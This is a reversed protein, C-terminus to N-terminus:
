RVGDLLGKYRPALHQHAGAVLASLLAEDVETELQDASGKAGTPELEIAEDTRFKFRAQNGCQHCYVYDGPKQDRRVVITPGCMACSMIPIGHDTHGVLHNLQGVSGLRVLRASLEADFQKGAAEQIIDLAKEVLMGKRYPRTSTMADFADAVSIIRAVLPINNGKLGDPYGSGDYCEQHHRIEKAVDGLEKIPHLITAGIISHKKIEEYEEPAM